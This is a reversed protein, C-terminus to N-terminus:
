LVVTCLFLVLTARLTTLQNATQATVQRCWFAVLASKYALAFDNKKKIKFLLHHYKKGHIVNTHLHSIFLLLNPCCFDVKMSHSYSSNHFHSIFLLLIPYCFDVQKSHLIGVFSPIIFRMVIKIAM